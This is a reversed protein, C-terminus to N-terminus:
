PAPEVVPGAVVAVGLADAGDRVARAVPAGGVVQITRLALPAKTRATCEAVFAEAQAPTLTVITAATREAVDWGSATSWRSSVVGPAAAALAPLLSAAAHDVEWLPSAGLLVDGTTLGLAHTAASAAAGLAGATVTGAATVLAPGAPEDAPVPPPAPAAALVDGLGAAGEQPGDMCVLAGVVHGSAAVEAHRDHTYVLVAPRAAALAAALVPEPADVAVTVAPAGLRWAAFLTVVFDLGSHAHVAVPAGPGAGLGAFAGAAREVQEVAAAFTLRRDRETWWWATADPHREAAGLLQHHIGM